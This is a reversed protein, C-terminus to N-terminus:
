PRAERQTKHLLYVPGVLLNSFKADISDSAQPQRPSATVASSLEIVLNDRIKWRDDTLDHADRVRHESTLTEQDQTKTEEGHVSM